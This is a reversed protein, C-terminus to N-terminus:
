SGFPLVGPALYFGSSGAAVDGVFGLILNIFNTIPYM